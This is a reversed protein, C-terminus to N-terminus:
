CSPAAPQAGVGAHETLWRAIETLNRTGSEHSGDAPVTAISVALPKGDVTVIGLQRDLYGGGVGPRSGPGWGGKFQAEPGTAGLGWSSAARRGPGDAGAGARGRRHM